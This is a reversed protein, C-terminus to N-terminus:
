RGTVDTDPVGSEPAPRSRLRPFSLTVTTGLGPASDIHLAGDHQHVLARSLALGLGAGESPRSSGVDVQEFPRFVRELDRAAMGVGTDIIRITVGEADVEVEVRVRGGHETFKVANTLLNLMIQRFRVRDGLITAGADASRSFGLDIGADAARGELLRFCADIHEAVDLPERRLVLKGAEVRSLDLVDDILALLHDGSARIDAAYGRYKDHGIPGYLERAMVESFGIIANLPTRLEHSMAALFMSKSRDASLAADRARSLEESAAKLRANQRALQGVADSAEQLARDRARGAAQLHDLAQRLARLAVRDIVLHLGLAVLAAFLGVLATELLVPRLSAAVMVEAVRNGDADHVPIRARMVPRDAGVEPGIVVRGDPAFLHRELEIETAWIGALVRRLADEADIWGAGTSVAHAAMREAAVAAEHHVHEHLFRLSAVAYLAPISVLVIAAVALTLRRLTDRVLAIDAAPSPDAATDGSWRAGGSESAGVGSRYAPESTPETTM